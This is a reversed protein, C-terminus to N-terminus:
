PSKGAMASVGRYQFSGVRVMRGRVIAETPHGLARWQGSKKKQTNRPRPEEHGQIQVMKAYSWDSLLWGKHPKDVLVHLEPSRARATAM